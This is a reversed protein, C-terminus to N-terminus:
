EIAYALRRAVYVTRVEDASAGRAIGLVEYPGM